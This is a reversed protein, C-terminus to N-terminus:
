ALHPSVRYSAGDLCDDVAIAVLTRSDRIPIIRVAGRNGEVSRGQARESRFFRGM